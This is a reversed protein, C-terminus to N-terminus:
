ALDLASVPARGPPQAPRPTLPTVPRWPLTHRQGATLDLTTGWHRIQLASPGDDAPLSYTADAPSIEVKLRNGRWRLNFTLGSWGPPLQPAFALVEGSDRLGGFGAVLALWTGALSAIHLGDRVNHELDELDMLAAETLYDAALNLHGVEAAVIAQTCASLSSDRVTLPEYYAFNIAKQEPTFQTGHWHLALTLDAQKVVQKRYLDFYPVHLLLPYEDERASAEFDWVQKDTYGRDQQHVQRTEDFPVAVVAALVAWHNTEELEVGLERSENPWRKSAAVADLLNQRATLNTYINDDVVASYEDPGTVGDIHFQGDDGLHGVSTWLRAIEVLMPLVHDRDVDQDGTWHVYRAAALGIAGNIHFAATGAPWYGSCEAGNITRWPFAAGRLRLAHARERALDL